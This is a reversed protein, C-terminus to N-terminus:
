GLTVDVAVEGGLVDEHPLVAGAAERPDQGVEPQGGPDGAVPLHERLDASGEPHRRLAQRPLVVVLLYVMCCSVKPTDMTM